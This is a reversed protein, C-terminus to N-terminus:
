TTAGYSVNMRENRGDTEARDDIVIAVITIDDHPEAGDAHDDLLRLTARVVDEAEMPDADGIMSTVAELDIETRDRNRRETVGDTTLLCVDGPAVDIVEESLTADFMTPGVIGIAMGRPTIVRVNGGTRVIAPTHGARAVRLSRCDPDFEVCTMTIYTSREMSGHLTANVRRLLDAPGDSLRMAALVVGKLTAMYLAAPIGKGSVDAIIVGPRGSLFRIYDYYDGGVETAPIMVADVDFCPVLPATRPLLSSQIRRAVDFERQMRERELAAESLRAQDLAISITDGFATLLRLDDAEFGYEVTSFMVLTGIRRHESMLPVAIMSRVALASDIDPFRESMADILLPRESDLLLRHIQRNGHLAHVYDVHVLQAANVRVGQEDYTECWAGHALCVRLAFQTVSALLEDVSASEAMLRTLYTLSEVENSRRDVIGSNPLAAIVAVLFRGFFVLALFNVAAPLTAGSRIFMQASITVTAEDFFAHQITLVFAAFGGCLTLWLLRIKKDMSITALWNLRRITLLMVIAAAMLLLFGLVGFGDWVDSLADGLWVLLVLILLTVLLRQTSRQRRAMLVQVLFGAVGITITFTGIAVVHSTLVTLLNTPAAGDMSFPVLAGLLLLALTSVAYTTLAGAMTEYRIEASMRRSYFLVTLGVIGALVLDSAASLGIEVWLNADLAHGGMVSWMTIVVIRVVLAVSAMIGLTMAVSRQTSADQPIRIIM